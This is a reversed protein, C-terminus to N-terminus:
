GSLGVRALRTRAQMLDLLLARRLTHHVPAQSVAIKASISPRAARPTILNTHGPHGKTLVLSGVALGIVFLGVWLLDLTWAEWGYAPAANGVTECGEHMRPKCGGTERATEKRGHPTGQPASSRKVPPAILMLPRDQPLRKGCDLCVSYCQDEGRPTLPRSKYRHSCRFVQNLIGQLTSDREEDVGIARATGNM